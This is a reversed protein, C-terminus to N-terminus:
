FPYQNQADAPHEREARCSDLVLQTRAISAERDRRDLRIRNFLAWSTGTVAILLASLLCFLHESGHGAHFILGGLGTFTVAFPSLIRRIIKRSRFRLSMPSSGRM